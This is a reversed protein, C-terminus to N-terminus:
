EISKLSEAMNIKELKFFMIGNVLMAFAFTLLLSWAKRKDHQIVQGIDINCFPDTLNCRNLNQTKIGPFRRIIYKPFIQYKRRCDTKQCPDGLTPFWYGAM